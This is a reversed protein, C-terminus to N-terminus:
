RSAVKQKRKKEKKAAKKDSKSKSKSSTSAESLTSAPKALKKEKKLRKREAKNTTPEAESSPVDNSASAQSVASSKRELKRKKKELKRREKESLGGAEDEASAKSGSVESLSRKLKKKKSSKKDDNDDETSLASQSRALKKAAKKALKKEQIKAQRKEELKAAKLAAKKEQKRRRKKERHSDSDDSNSEIDDFNRKIVRGDGDNHQKNASTADYTGEKVFNSYLVNNPLGDTRVVTGDASTCTPASWSYHSSVGLGASKRLKSLTDHLRQAKEEEMTHNHRHFAILLLHQKLSPADGHHDVSRPRLYPFHNAALLAIM